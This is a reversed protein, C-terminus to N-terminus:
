QPAAFEVDVQLGIWRAAIRSAAEELEIRVEVVRRDVAATPDLSSLGASAVMQGIRAVTGRLGDRDHPSPLARSTIKARQGLALRKVDTEYVEAVIVLRDLNAMELIPTAGLLEGERAHVKLVTGASPAVITTRALNENAADLQKNLSSLPIQSLTQQKAARAAQLDANAAALGVQRGVTLKELLSEAARLEAKAQRVALDQHERERQSVLEESLGSLREADKEATAVSAKLFEIQDQQADIDTQQAEVRAVASEAAVIRADCLAEEAARRETAEAIRAALAEVELKRLTHSDLRALPAGREVVDGEHVFLEGLREGALAAVRVLGDAPQIRGMAGVPHVVNTQSEGAASGATRSPAANGGFLRGALDTAYAIWGGAGIALGLIIWTTARKM